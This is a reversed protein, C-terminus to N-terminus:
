VAVENEIEKTCAMTYAYADAYKMILEIDGGEHVLVKEISEDVLAQTLKKARSVSKMLQIWKNNSSMADNFKLRRHTAEKLQLNM